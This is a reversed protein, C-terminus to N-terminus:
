NKRATLQFGSKTFNTCFTVAIEEERYVVQTMAKQTKLALLIEVVAWQSLRIYDLVFMAEPRMTDCLWHRWVVRGRNLPPRPEISVHSMLPKRLTHRGFDSVKNDM